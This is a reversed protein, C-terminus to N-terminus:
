TIKTLVFPIGLDQFARSIVGDNWFPLDWFSFVYEKLLGCGYNLMWKLLHYFKWSQQGFEEFKWLDEETGGKKVM